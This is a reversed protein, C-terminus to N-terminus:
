KSAGNLQWLKANLATAFTLWAIYPVLLFAPLVANAALYFELATWFATGLLGCSVVFGARIRHLGFFVPAWSLNLVANVFYALFAKPLARPTSGLTLACSLGILAYLTSWVPAFINDPPSWSPKDLSAYWPDLNKVVFVAPLAGAAVTGGIWPAAVAPALAKPSAHRARFTPAAVGDVGRVPRLAASAALACVALGLM